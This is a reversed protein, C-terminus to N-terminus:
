KLHARLMWAMKEHKEMLGTIFDATGADHLKDNFYNINERLHIIITDHDNLLSKIYGESSNPQVTEETLHTLEIYERLTAVAYHGLMRIREAIEDIMDQLAQYQSEFYLHMSHFNIGEVNWHAGRTKTYLISEDALISNLAHSISTLNDSAIGITAEM